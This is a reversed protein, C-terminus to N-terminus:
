SHRANRRVIEALGALEPSIRGKAPITELRCPISPPEIADRMVQTKKVDKAEIMEPTKDTVPFDRSLLRCGDVPLPHLCRYVIEKRGEKFSKRDRGEDCLIQADDGWIHFLHHVTEAKRAHPDKLKGKTLVLGVMRIKRMVENGMRHGICAGM